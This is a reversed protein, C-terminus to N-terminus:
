NIGVKKGKIVIDDKTKIKLKKGEIVIDGNKKMSFSAAGCKITFEVDARLLIATKAIAHIPGDSDMAIEAGAKWAITTQASESISAASVSRSGVVSVSQSAGVSVSKVGGVEEASLGGVAVNMLGGVSLALMGGVSTTKAVAVTQNASAGITETQNAGVTITQNAGVTETQNAGVCITQDTGVALTMAAGITEDHNAGVCISKDVGITETHNNGVTESRDNGITYSADVGINECHNNDIEVNWDKQGHVYIEEAGAADDFRLENSGKGGPVSATRWGSQTKDAPLAFPPSNEGNYVSGTVLPRDPNGELFEVVVEMGRRPIFQAGWGPGSWSQACRVWCSAESAYSPQEEWEFQVQIRGHEDTHIDEDGVVIATQPGHVRPKPTLRRPRLPTALPVCEFQNTYRLDAHSTHVITTVLYDGDLELAEDALLTFRQGLELGAVNSQCQLVVGASAEAEVCDNAREALDDAELRRRGHQYIRRTRGRADAQGAESTLLDRPMLWDFDRQLSSTTTLRRRAAVVQISELDAHDYDTAIVPLDASGDINAFAPYQNNADAFTLLEHPGDGHVFRYSIGEEELLRSVFDFDSERFQVCNERPTTGRAVSGFDYDRGYSGLGEDLVAKVVDQVSMAQWIRSNQGLRLLAFAPEITLRIVYRHEFRGIGEVASILGFLRRREGDRLILLECDAGLFPEDEPSTCILDIRAHFPRDITEEIRAAGVKWEAVPGEDCYFELEVPALRPDTLADM